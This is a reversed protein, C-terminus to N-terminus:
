AMPASRNGPMSLCFSLGWLRSKSEDKVLMGGDVFCMTYLPIRYLVAGGPSAARLPPALLYAARRACRLSLGSISATIRHCARM